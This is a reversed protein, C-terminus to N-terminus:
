FQMGLKFNLVRGTMYNPIGYQNKSYADRVWTNTNSNRIDFINFLELGATLEKFSKLFGTTHQKNADAFVYSIGVDARKYDNLRNQFQYVDSYAPAGGPLGTNYVLNLYAKLDPLNPVYDQFLVGFKLRQDTPRAIYGRNNSNEETKLYGFSVWSDNGPVFEGNLRVDLGYAYADTVNDARYRIRVNDVSYANVDSLDKYYLETVLKFPREWVNFSYENGAVLHISKQAKVEPHVQGDYDRLEKYFPPQSYWGGSIRFLMDSEWNPKIAFQARPSFITQSYSNTSATKISWYHARVGINMWVQHDNWMTKRSFQLFSTIRNIDTENEARVNRYPEIPGTFPEYPQNNPIHHPPRVSFGLSDIVEWERIRDKSNEKQYKIGAKWENNGDKLTAKLQINSILADLDNRAHNIQSGIGQSFEVEGFNEAGINSNVEGIAYAAAIDFYEEEQTNFSSITGTLKLNDNIQYDASLAGFLTQFRDKEQGQYFVILELPNTLTGFRTKRTLPQYNYNNLSFNGLLNLTLKSTAQYSLFSQVDTFQPRFNVETQKNNVFLSNDRYRVGVIASLKNNAFTDEITFSGGLLSLDLQIGFNTPKRYTIDLVSSLKDGYKAQFGGASFNINQIMHPNTFSLGEQQGSRILFPRYVEIGNVYVLNEDFNGGRVNYQTSLENNNSVGPLTMLINEVGANAGLINKVKKTKIKTIGQAEKQQNKVIVEELEESKIQLTPSFNFSRKGRSTFKKVLTKYSVHTFTVTVTKRIPITFQYMGNADTTTGKSLYSIAVGEIPTNFKNTIIGKVTATKQAFVLSPFLLLLIFKKM